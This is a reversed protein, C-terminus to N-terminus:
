IINFYCAGRTDIATITSCEHDTRVYIIIVIYQVSLYNKKRM